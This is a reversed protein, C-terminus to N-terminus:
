RGVHHGAATRVARGIVEKSDIVPALEAIVDPLMTQHHLVAQRCLGHQRQRTGRPMHVVQRFPADQIRFHLIPPQANRTSETGAVAAHQHDRFAGDIGHADVDRLLRTEATTQRTRNRHYVRFSLRDIGHYRHTDLDEIRGARLRLPAPIVAGFASLERERKIQSRVVPAAQPLDTHSLQSRATASRSVYSYRAFLSYRPPLLLYSTIPLLHTASEAM